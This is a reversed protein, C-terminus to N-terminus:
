SSAQGAWHQPTAAGIGHRRAAPPAALPSISLLLRFRLPSRLAILIADTALYHTTLMSTTSACAGALAEVAEFHRGGNLGIVLM